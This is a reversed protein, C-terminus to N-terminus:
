RCSPAAATASVSPALSSQRCVSRCCGSQASHSHHREALRLKKRGHRASASRRCSGPCAFSCAGSAVTLRQEALSSPLAARLQVRVSRDSCCARCTSCACVLSHDQWLPAMLPSPPVSRLHSTVPCFPPPFPSRHSAVPVISFPGASLASSCLALVLVQQIMLEVDHKCHMRRLLRRQLECHCVRNCALASLRVAAAHPKSLAAAIASRSAHNQVGRVASLADM